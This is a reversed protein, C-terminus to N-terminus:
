CHGLSIVVKEKKDHEEVIVLPGTVDPNSSLRVIEELNIGKKQLVDMAKRPLLRSAARLVVGPITITTEPNPEANKYVRIKLDAM